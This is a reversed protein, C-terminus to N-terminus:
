SASNRYGSDMAATAREREARWAELMRDDRAGCVCMCVLVLLAALFLFVSLGALFVTM